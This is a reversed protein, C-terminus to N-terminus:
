KTNIFFRHLYEYIREIFCENTTETTRNQVQFHQKKAHEYRVYNIWQAANSEKYNDYVSKERIFVTAIFDYRGQQALNATRGDSQM